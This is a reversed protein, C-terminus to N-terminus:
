LILCSLRASLFNYRAEFGLIYGTCRISHVKTQDLRVINPRTPKTLCGNKLEEKTFLIALFGHALATPTTRKDVAAVNCLDIGQVWVRNGSQLNGFWCGSPFYLSLKQHVLKNPHLSHCSILSCLQWCFAALDSSLFNHKTNLDLCLLTKSVMHSILGRPLTHCVEM